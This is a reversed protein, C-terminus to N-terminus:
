MESDEKIMWNAYQKMSECPLVVIKQSTNVTKRLIISEMDLQTKSKSKRANGTSVFQQDKM